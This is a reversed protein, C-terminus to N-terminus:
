GDEGDKEGWVWPAQDKMALSPRARQREHGAGDIREMPRISIDPLLVQLNQQIDLAILTRIFSDLSVGQGREMRSITGTSVGAERALQAQTVNRSLRIQQLHRCLEAEIQGSTATSFDLNTAM